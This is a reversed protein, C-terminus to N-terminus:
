AGPGPRPSADLPDVGDTYCHGTPLTWSLTGDPARAVRTGRLEHKLRHHRRCLAHLNDASTPGMPYPVHHDLDCREADITCGPFRCSRDRAEVLRALVAPPTYTTTGVDLVAGSTGDTLLRNWVGDAALERALEADVSGYGVLRGPLDGAGMLTSAPVHVHIAPQVGRHRALTIPDLGDLVGTRLAKAFPAVLADARLQDLTRPDGTAKVSRAAANLATSIMVWDLAPLHAVLDAMGDPAPHGSVSRGGRALRRREAAAEPALVLVTRAVARAVAPANQVAARGLVAEEVQRALGPELLCCGDAIAHARALDITGSALAHSTSTLGDHLALATGLERGVSRRTSRVRLAIEDDAFARVEPTRRHGGVETTAFAAMQELRRADCAAGLRRWAEVLELRERDLLDHSSASDLAAWLAQPAVSGDVDRELADLCPLDLDDIAIGISASAPTTVLGGRITTLSELEAV